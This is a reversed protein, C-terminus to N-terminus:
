AENCASQKNSTAQALWEIEEADEGLASEGLHARGDYFRCHSETGQERRTSKVCHQLQRRGSVIKEVSLM